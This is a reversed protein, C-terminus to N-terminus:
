STFEEVLDKNIYLYTGVPQAFQPLLIKALGNQVGVQEVRVWGKVPQERTPTGELRVVLLPHAFMRVELPEGPNKPDVADILVLWEDRFMGPVVRCPILFHPYSHGGKRNGNTSETM